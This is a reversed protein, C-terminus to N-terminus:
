RWAGLTLGHRSLPMSRLREGSAAYIANALSAAVTVPSVEGVGGLKGGGEVFETILEPSEALYPMVYRNLNDQVVRGQEFTIESKCGALGFVVGGEIGAAAILPDLVRGCDVVSVVRKVHVQGDSVAVDTVQAILSGFAAAFAVGKGAGSARPKQWEALAAARELVRLARPNAALLRQRYALPDVGAAAAIEDIFSELAFINPGYGTARLVSTPIPVDMLHFDVRRHEVEYPWETMGELASPDIKQDRLVPAIGPFVPLLITPSVVRAHLAQLLGAGDLAARLRVLTAPRFQDRRLDEERDWITKVPAGVARSILAAQVIFDPILRRGFGGGIYPTRNVAIQKDELGLASKLAFFALEQGQTPAWVECRLATVHATCNMPEMTAHALFPNEYDATLTRAGQALKRLADGQQVPTAFPGQELRARFQAMLAPSDLAANPGGEFECKMVALARRARWFTDAVVAVGGPVAVVAKVGPSRRAAAEDYSRLSGGVTPSTRVAAILMGPVAYDIGFVASGDVKAPVDVRPMARGLWRLEADARLTPNRPPDLQAAASAIRGFSIRRQSGREVVFGESTACMQPDIRWHSAAARVLMDRAAAGMARMLDYFSQVSESNGTFMWNLRPNRYAPDYPATVLRVSSWSAGLEDALLSPLTTSIGQGIEAQSVVITVTEDPAVRVWANLGAEGSRAAGSGDVVAAWAPWSASLLLAGSGHGILEIFRRRSLEPGDCGAFRDACDPAM